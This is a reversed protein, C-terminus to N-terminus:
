IHFGFERWAAFFGQGALTKGAMFLGIQEPAAFFDRARRLASIFQAQQNLTRHLRRRQRQRAAIPFIGHAAHRFFM